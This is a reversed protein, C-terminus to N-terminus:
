NPRLKYLMSSHFHPTVISRFLPMSKYLIKIMPKGEHNHVATHLGFTYHLMAMLKYCEDFTFGETHLYFGNHHWAGDDMAWYALSIPNLYQLLDSTIIKTYGKGDARREYFLEHLPILAPYSRTLVQLFPYSVGKRWGLNFLPTRGCYPSLMQYVSWLYGFRKITQTFVFYPTASTRSYLLAGDGLLHGVLQSIIGSNFSTINRSHQNLRISNSAGVTGYSVVATSTSRIKSIPVFAMHATIALGYGLGPYDM